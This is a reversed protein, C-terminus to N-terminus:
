RLRDSLRQLRITHGRNVDARTNEMLEREILDRIVPNQENELDIFLKDYWSARLTTQKGM